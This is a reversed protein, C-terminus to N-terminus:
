VGPALIKFLVLLLTFSVVQLVVLKLLVSMQIAPTKSPFRGLQNILELGIWIAGATPILLMVFFLGVLVLGLGAM